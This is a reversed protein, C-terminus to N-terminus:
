KKEVSPTANAAAAAENPDPERLLPIIINNLDDVSFAGAKAYVLRGSRSIVYNTPVAGLAGYPGRLRRILPITLKSALPRLEAEPVSDQTAVALVQLGYDKYKQFFLELLPLEARCPVCWTAWYNLIVVEGKLDALAVERGGFTSATFSPAPAGVKPGAVAQGALVWLAACVVAAGFRSM